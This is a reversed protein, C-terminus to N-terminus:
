KAPPALALNMESVVGWGSWAAPATQQVVNILWRAQTRLRELAQESAQLQAEMRHYLEQETDRGGHDAYWQERAIKVADGLTKPERQENTALATLGAVVVDREEVTMAVTQGPLIVRAKLKAALEAYGPTSM